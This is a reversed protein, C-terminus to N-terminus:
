DVPPAPANPLPPETPFGAETMLRAIESMVLAGLEERPTDPSIPKGFVVTLPVRKLRKAGRPLMEYTGILAVPILIAKSKQALLTFGPQAVNLKGDHTRTGEPFIGLTDGQGLVELAARFMARDAAGRKVPISRLSEMLFKPLGPKFLEEKAIGWLIRYRYLAAWGLLPDLNSSHNVAFLVAGTEPVNEAGVLKWRGYVKFFLPLMVGLLRRM